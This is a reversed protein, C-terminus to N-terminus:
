NASGLKIIQDHEIIRLEIEERSDAGSCCNNVIAKGLVESPISWSHWPDTFRALVQLFAHMGRKDPTLVGGVRYIFTCKIGARSIIGEAEYKYRLVSMFSTPSSGFSSIYHVEQVNRRKLFAMISRPYELEIKRYTDYDM